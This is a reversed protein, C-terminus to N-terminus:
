EGGACSRGGHHRAALGAGGADHGPGLRQRCVAALLVATTLGTFGIRAKM